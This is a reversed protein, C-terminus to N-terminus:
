DDFLKLQAFHRLTETARQGQNKVYTAVTDWNNRKGVTAVYYGDSWFEGGWLEKKLDPFKSFLTRASISKFIGVIRGPSMKPHASCLIHIHDRDAGMQEFEIDGREQIEGAIRVLEAEIEPRLLAKRYKVPFVIHYHIESACHWSKKVSM